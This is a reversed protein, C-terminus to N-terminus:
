GQDLLNHLFEMLAYRDVFVHVTRDVRNRWIEVSYGNAVVNVTFTM